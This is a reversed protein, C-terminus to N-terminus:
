RSLLREATRRLTLEIADLNAPTAVIDFQGSEGDSTTWKYEALMRSPGRECAIVLDNLIDYNDPRGFSLIIQQSIGSGQTPPLEQMPTQGLRVECPDSPNNKKVVRVISQLM